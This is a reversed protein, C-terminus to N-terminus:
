EYFYSVLFVVFFNVSDIRRYFIVFKVQIRDLEIDEAVTNRRMTEM